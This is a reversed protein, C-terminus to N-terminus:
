SEKETEFVGKAKFFVNKRMNQPIKKEMERKVLTVDRLLMNEYQGSLPVLVNRFVADAGRFMPLFLYVTCGLCLGYFGPVGGIYNELFDMIIFLVSWCCWYTLWFTDEENEERTALAVTSAVAPYVTGVAVVVFRRAEEPLFMFTSWIIWIYGSNVGALIIAAKGDLAKKMSKAVPAIIPDTVLDNFLGAGDTFPLLLWLTTFIEFKYWHEAVSPFNEAIVDMFETGFSFTVFVIWYQLWCKDDADGITCVAVISEYIPLITGLFLVGGPSFIVDQIYDPVFFLLLGSVVAFAVHFYPNAGHSRPFRSMLPTSICLGLIAVCAIIFESADDAHTEDEM